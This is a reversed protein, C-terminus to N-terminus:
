FIMSWSTTARTFCLSHMPLKNEPDDTCVWRTNHILPQPFWGVSKGKGKGPRIRVKQVTIMLPNHPKEKGRGAGVEVLEEM